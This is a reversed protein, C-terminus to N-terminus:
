DGFLTTPKRGAWETCREMIYTDVAVYGSGGCTEFHRLIHVAEVAESKAEGEVFLLPYM